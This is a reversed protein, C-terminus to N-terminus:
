PKSRTQPDFMQKAADGLLAFTLVSFVIAMGAGAVILGETM